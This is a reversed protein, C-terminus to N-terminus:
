DLAEKSQIRAILLVVGVGLTALLTVVRFWDPVFFEAAIWGVLLGFGALLAGLALTTVLAAQGAPQRLAMGAGFALGILLGGSWRVWAFPFPDSGALDEVLFAPAFLLVVGFVAAVVLFLWLGLALVGTAPRAATATDAADM